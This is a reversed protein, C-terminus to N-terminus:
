TGAQGLIVVQFELVALGEQIDPLILVVVRFQTWEALPHAHPVSRSTSQIHGLLFLIGDTLIGNWEM